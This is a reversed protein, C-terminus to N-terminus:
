WKKRRIKKKKNKIKSPPPSILVTEAGVAYKGGGHRRSWKWGRGRWECEMRKSLSLSQNETEHFENIKLTLGIMTEKNSDIQSLLGLETDFFYWLISVLWILILDKPLYEFVFDNSTHTKITYHIESWHTHM